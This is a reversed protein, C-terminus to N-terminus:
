QLHVIKKISLVQSHSDIGLGSSTKSAGSSGGSSASSESSLMSVNDSFASDNDPSETRGVSLLLLFFNIASFLILPSNQFIKGWVIIKIVSTMKTIFVKEFPLLPEFVFFWFIRDKEVSRILFGIKRGM